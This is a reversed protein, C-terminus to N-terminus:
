HFRLSATSSPGDTPWTAVMPDAIAVSYVLDVNPTALGLSAFPPAVPALSSCSTVESIVIDGLEGDVNPARATSPDSSIDWEALPDPANALEIVALEMTTPQQVIVNLTDDAAHTGFESIYNVIETRCSQSPSVWLRLLEHGLEVSNNLSIDASALAVVVMDGPVIAPIPFTAKDAVSTPPIKTTRVVSVPGAPADPPVAVPRERRADCGCLAIIV